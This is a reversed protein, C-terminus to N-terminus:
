TVLKERSVYEVMNNQSGGSIFINGSWDRFVASSMKDCLFSYIWYVDGPATCSIYYNNFVMQIGCYWEWIKESSM